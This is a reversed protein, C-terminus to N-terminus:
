SSKKVVSSLLVDIFMSCGIHIFSYFITAAFLILNINDIFILNHFRELNFWVWRVFSLTRNSDNVLKITLALPLKSFLDKVQNVTAFDDDIKNWESILPAFFINM